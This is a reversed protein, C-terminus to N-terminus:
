TVPLIVSVIKSCSFSGQKNSASNQNQVLVVQTQMHATAM